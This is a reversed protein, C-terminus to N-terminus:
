GDKKKNRRKIRQIREKSGKYIKKSIKQIRSNRLSKIQIRQMMEKYGKYIKM